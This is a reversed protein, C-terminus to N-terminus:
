NLESDEPAPASGRGVGRHRRRQGRGRGPGNWVTRWIHLNNRHGSGHDGVAAKGAALGDAFQALSPVPKGRDLGPVSLRSIRGAVLGADEMAQKLPGRQIITYGLGATHTLLHRLTPPQDAATLIPQGNEGMGGFVRAGAFAPLHKEIPDDPSWLGQDHLIMMAVATVPKTMSFIRFMTDAAMPEGSAIDKKGITSVHAVRGHRGCRADM